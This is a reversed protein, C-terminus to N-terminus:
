TNVCPSEEQAEGPGDPQEDMYDSPACGVLKRFVNYFNQTNNFGVMYAIETTRYTRMCLLLKAKEIRLYSLYSNLTTGTEEKFSRSLYVKHIHFHDAISQLSLDQHYNENLYEIVKRIRDSEKNEQQISRMLNEVWHYMLTLRERVNKIGIHNYGGSSLSQGQKITQLIEDTIGAGNDAVSVCLYDGVRTCRVQIVGLRDEMPLIGHYLANEVLPQLVLRPLLANRANEDVSYACQLPRDAYRSRMIRLYHKVCAVESDVTCFDSETSISMRLLANLSTILSAIISLVLVVGVMATQQVVVHYFSSEDLLAFIEWNAYSNNRCRFVAYATGNEEATLRGKLRDPTISIGSGSSFVTHNEQTVFVTDFDNLATTSFNFFMRSPNLEICLYAKYDYSNNLYIAGVFLLKEDETYFARFAQSEALNEACRRVNQDESLLFRNSGIVRFDKNLVHITNVLWSSNRTSYLMDSLQESQSESMGGNYYADLCSRFGSDNLFGLHLSMVEDVRDDLSASCIELQQEMTVRRDKQMAKSMTLYITLFVFLFAISILLAHLSFIRKWLHSNKKM